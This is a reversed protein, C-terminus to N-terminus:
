TIFYWFGKQTIKIFDNLECLQSIMRQKEWHMKLMQSEEEKKLLKTIKEIKAEEEVEEGEAVEETEEIEEELLKRWM